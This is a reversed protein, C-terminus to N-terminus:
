SGEGQGEGLRPSVLTAAGDFFSQLTQNYRFFLDVGMSDHGKVAIRDGLLVLSSLTHKGTAMGNTVIDEFMAQWDALDGEVWCDLPRGDGPEFLAVQECGHERLRIAVSFPAGERQMVVGLDMDCWGLENYIEPHDNMEKALAEFLDIADVPLTLASHSAPATASTPSTTM